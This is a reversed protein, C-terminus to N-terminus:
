NIVIIKKKDLLSLKKRSADVDARTSETCAAAGRGGQPPISFFCLLTFKRKKKQVLTVLLHCGRLLWYLALIEREREKKGEELWM